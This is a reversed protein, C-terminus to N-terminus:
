IYIRLSTVQEIICAEAESEMKDCAWKMRHKYLPLNDLPITLTSTKCLGVFMIM